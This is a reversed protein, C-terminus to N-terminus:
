RGTRRRLGRADIGHGRVPGSRRYSEHLGCRSGRRCSNQFPYADEHKGGMSHVNPMRQPNNRGSCQPRERLRCQGGFFSRPCHQSASRYRRDRVMGEAGAPNRGRHEALSRAFAALENEAKTLLINEPDNDGTAFVPHAAGMDSVPAMVALDAALVLFVGGSAASAGSPTVYIAVPVPSALMAAVLARVTVVLGGPTDVEVLVLRADQEAALRLGRALYTETVPVLPGDIKLLVVPGAAAQPAAGAAVGSAWLLGL